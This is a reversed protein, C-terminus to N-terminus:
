PLGSVPPRLGSFWMERARGGSEEQKRQLEGTERRWRGAEKKEKDVLRRMARRKRVALRREISILRVPMMKPTPNKMTVWACVLPKSSNKTRVIRPVLPAMRM